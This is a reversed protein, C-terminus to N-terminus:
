YLWLDPDEVEFRIPQPNDEVFAIVLIHRFRNTFGARSLAKEIDPGFNVFTAQLFFRELKRSRAMAVLISKWSEPDIKILKNRIDCKEINKYSKLINVIFGPTQFSEMKWTFKKLTSLERNPQVDKLFDSKALKNDLKLDVKFHLINEHRRVLALFSTPDDSGTLKLIRLTSISQINNFLPNLNLKKNKTFEFKLSELKELNSISKGLIELSKKSLSAEGGVFTLSLGKISMKLKQFVDGMCTFIENTINKELTSLSICSLYKENELAELIKIFGEEPISFNLKLMLHILATMSNLTKEMSVIVQSVDKSGSYDHLSISLRELTKQPLSKMLFNLGKPTQEDIYGEIHLKKVNMTQFQKKLIIQCVKDELRNIHFPLAVLNKFKLICEMFRVMARDSVKYDKGNFNLKISEIKHFGSISRCLRYDLNKKIQDHYLELYLITLKKNYGKRLVREILIQVMDQNSIRDKEDTRATFDLKSRHLCTKHSLFTMLIGFGQATSTVKIVAFGTIHKLIRKLTPNTQLNKLNRQLQPDMQLM